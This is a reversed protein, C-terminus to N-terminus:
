RDVDRTVGHLFIHVGQEVIRNLECTEAQDKTLLCRTQVGARLMDLFQTAALLTDEVEIEGAAKRGSLYCALARRVPLIAEEYFISATEPFRPMEGVITRFLALAEEDMCKCLYLTGLKTLAQDIPLHDIKSDRIDQLFETAKRSIVAKYLGNKDGFLDYLTKLSGGSENIIKSLSTGKYGHRTFHKYAVDLIKKRREFLRHSFPGPPSM